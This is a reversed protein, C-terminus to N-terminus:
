TLEWVISTSKRRDARAVTLVSVRKAGARKLVRACAAATAGTTFVDDVLLVHRDRVSVGKRLVFAGAVNSRRQSSTLGAQQSTRRSRSLARVMPLRLRKSIKGAVVEAQNFGRHWQRIWHLPAPVIVDFRAERPLAQIAWEALVGGLPEVKGFKYLHVIKRLRGEYEGFAFVADYGVEGTRCIGCRGLEDLPSSNLFPAGCTSCFHEAVFADPREL